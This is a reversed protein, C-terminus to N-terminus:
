FRRRQIFSVQLMSSKVGAYCSQLAQVVQTWCLVVCYTLTQTASVRAMTVISELDKREEAEMCVEVNQNAEILLKRALHRDSDLAQSKSVGKIRMFTANSASMAFDIKEKLSTIRETIYCADSREHALMRRGTSPAGNKCREGRGTAQFRFSIDVGDKIEDPFPCSTTELKEQQFTRMRYGAQDIADQIVFGIDLKDKNNCTHLLNLDIHANFFGVELDGNCNPLEHFPDTAAIISLSSIILALGIPINYQMKMIALLPNSLIM